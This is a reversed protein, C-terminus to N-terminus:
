WGFSAGLGVTTNHQTDYSMSVRTALSNNNGVGILHGLNTDFSIATATESEFNGLGIGLSFDQNGRLSPINAMAAVGAIGAYSKRDGEKRDRKEQNLQGANVADYQEVGDAIGTVKTPAGNGNSFQARDDRLTLYTSNRGGKLVTADNSITLRANGDSAKVITDGSANRAVLKQLGGINGENSKINNSNQAIRGSNASINSSNQAINDKNTTIVAANQAIDNKNSAIDAKNTDIVAKNATIASTNSSINAASTAIDAKNTSIATKNATIASTNNTINAASTAIDAKNTSIATKNATIASTNNTINAKSTAIDTKNTSIAAKNATIASTNNTINAKNTAIDTKNVSIASTNNTINTKNTSIAATNNNIATTQDTAYSADYTAPAIAAPPPAAYTAASAWLLSLGAFYASPRNLNKCIKMISESLYNLSKLTAACLFLWTRNM